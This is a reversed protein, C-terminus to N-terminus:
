SAEGATLQLLGVEVAAPPDLLPPPCFWSAPALGHRRTHELGDPDDGWDGHLSVRVVEDGGAGGGTVAVGESAPSPAPDPPASPLLVAALV